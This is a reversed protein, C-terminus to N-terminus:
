LSDERKKKLAEADRIRNHRSPRGRVNEPKIRHAEICKHLHLTSTRVIKGCDCTTYTSM